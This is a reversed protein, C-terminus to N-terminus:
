FWIVDGSLVPNNLKQISIVGNGVWHKVLESDLTKDSSFRAAQPAMTQLIVIM